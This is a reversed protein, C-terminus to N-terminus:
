DKGACLAQKQRLFVGFGTPDRAKRKRRGSAPCVDAVGEGATGANRRHQHQKTKPLPQRFRCCSKSTQLLVLQLYRSGVIGAAQQSKLTRACPMPDLPLLCICVVEAEMVTDDVMASMKTEPLQRAEFVM